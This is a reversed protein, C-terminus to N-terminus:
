RIPMDVWRRLEGREDCGRKGALGRNEVAAPKEYSDRWKTQCWELRQRKHGSYRLPQRRGSLLGRRQDRTATETKWCRVCPSQWLRWGSSSSTGYCAHNPRRRGTPCGTPSTACPLSSTIVAKLAGLPHTEREGFRAAGCTEERRGVASLDQHGSGCLGPGTGNATAPGYFRQGRRGGGAPAPLQIPHPALEPLGVHGSASHAPRGEARPRGAGVPM